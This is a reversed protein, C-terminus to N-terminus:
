AFKEYVMEINWLATNIRKLAANESEGPLLDIQQIAKVAFVQTANVVIADVRYNMYGGEGTNRSYVHAEEHWPSKVAMLKKRINEPLVSAQQLKNSLKIGAISSSSQDSSKGGPSLDPKISDTLLMTQSKFATFRGVVDWKQNGAPMIKFVSFGNAGVLWANITGNEPAPFNELLITSPLLSQSSLGAIVAQPLEGFSEWNWDTVPHWDLSNPDETPAMGINALGSSNVRREINSM